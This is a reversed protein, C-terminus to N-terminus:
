QGAGQDHALPSSSPPPSSPQEPPQVQFGFDPCGAELWSRLVAGSLTWLDTGRHIAEQQLQLYCSGPAVVYFRREKDEVREQRPPIHSM